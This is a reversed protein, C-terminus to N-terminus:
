RLCTWRPSSPSATTRSPDAYESAEDAYEQRDIPVTAKGLLRAAALRGHGRVVFGSRNSVTIPARWGQGDIIKALLELQADPHKNPNRPNPVVTEIPAIDDHACFVPIDDATALHNPM